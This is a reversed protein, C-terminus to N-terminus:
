GETTRDKFSECYARWLAGGGGGGGGVLGGGGGVWGVKLHMPIRTFRFNEGAKKETGERERLEWGLNFLQVDPGPGASRGEQEGKHSEQQVSRLGLNSSVHPKLRRYL